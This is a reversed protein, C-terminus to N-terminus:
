GETHKLIKAFRSLAGLSVRHVTDHTLKVGEVTLERAATADSYLRMTLGRSYGERTTTDCCMQTMYGCVDLETAAQQALWDALGTGQFSSPHRKQFVADGPGVGLGAAFDMGVTGEAFVPSGPPTLHQIFAVPEGRSRAREILRVIAPLTREADPLAWAGGPFYDRQVDIVILARQAM